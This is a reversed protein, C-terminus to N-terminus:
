VSGAFREGEKDGFSILEASLACSWRECFTGPCAESGVVSRSSDGSMVSSGALVGVASTTVGM